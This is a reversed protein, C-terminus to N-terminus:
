KKYPADERMKKMNDRLERGYTNRRRKRHRRWLWFSLLLLALIALLLYVERGDAIDGLIRLASNSFEM